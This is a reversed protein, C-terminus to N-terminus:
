RPLVAPELAWRDRAEDKKVVRVAIPDGVALLLKGAKDRLGANGPTPSLWAGGLAKGLDYLYLKVDIPPDDLTVHVKAGQIGMVTGTRAPRSELPLAVDPAFLHDIVRRNTLDNLRRQRDKSANAAALVEDRLAADDADSRRPALGLVEAAEKHVFVGVIERMPASFRAYPEAGVGHHKGPETSFVSRVNVLVAQRELARAVRAHAADAHGLTDVWDALPRDSARWGWVAPDLGHIAIVEAIQAELEALREPAPAPHVRYIAQAAPPLADGIAACLLTGGAANCLLSLHENYREVEPRIAETAVWLEGEVGIRLERRHFRIVQRAAAERERLAGVVPLLLLSEAYETPRLPSSAPDDLLAQVGDFTLKARSRIRARVFQSAVLKGDRDLDLQFVLARRPGDPNLSVAGESLARPLMPVSLGPLYYSAGRRLAEAFLASGPRVYYAADAIAYRVRFGDGHRELHLAQDLDRTGPGDITVYPIADHDELQPDDLGPSAVAAAAEAECPAPFSPDLGEAELLARLAETM